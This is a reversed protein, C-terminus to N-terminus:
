SNLLQFKLISTSFFAFCKKFLHGYNNEDLNITMIIAIILTIITKIILIKVIIILM